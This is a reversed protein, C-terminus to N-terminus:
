SEDYSKKTKKSSRHHIAKGPTWERAPFNEVRRELVPVGESELLRRQLSAHPERILLRGGAGVVRHWPIGEGSPCAAMARGATRAGGRLKLTRAVGGYTMVCGRPITKVLRYVSNWDM